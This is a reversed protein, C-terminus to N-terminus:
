NKKSEVGIINKLRELELSIANIQDKMKAMDKELKEAKHNRDFTEFFISIRKHKIGNITESVENWRLPEAVRAIVHAIDFEGNDKMAHGEVTSSILYDGVTLDQGNDAVWMEGNGVAMILYPNSTDHEATESQRGLFAGMIKSDNAISSKVVGYML